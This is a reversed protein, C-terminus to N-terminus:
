PTTVVRLVGQATLNAILTTVLATDPDTASFGAAALWNTPDPQGNTVGILSLPIQYQRGANGNINESVFSVPSAGIVSQTPMRKGEARNM